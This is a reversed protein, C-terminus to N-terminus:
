VEKTQGSIYLEKIDCRNTASGNAWSEVIKFSEIDLIDVNKFVHMSKDKTDIVKSWATSELEDNKLIKLTFGAGTDLKNTRVVIDKIIGLNSEGSPTFVLSTAKATISYGSSKYISTTDALVLKDFPTALASTNSNSALKTLVFGEATDVQGTEYIYGDSAFTLFGKYWTMTAYTPLDGDVYQLASIRSGNIYSVTFADDTEDKNTVYTIGNRVFLGGIYGGLKLTDDPGFATPEGSDDVAALDSSYVNIVSDGFRDVAVYTNYINDKIDKVISGSKYDAENM